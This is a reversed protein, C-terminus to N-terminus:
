WRHHSFLVAYFFNCLITTRASTASVPAFVTSYLLHKIWFNLSAFTRIQLRLAFARSYQSATSLSHPLLDYLCNRDLGADLACTNGAASSRSFVVSCCELCKNKSKKLMRVVDKMLMFCTCSFRWAVNRKGHSISYSCPSASLLGFIFFFPPLSASPSFVAWHVFPM